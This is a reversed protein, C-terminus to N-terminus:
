RLAITLKEGPKIKQFVVYRNTGQVSDRYILLNPQCSHTLNGYFGDITQNFDNNNFCNMQLITYIKLFMEKFIKYGDDFKALFDAFKQIKGRLEELEFMVDFYLLKSTLCIMNEFDMEINKMALIAKLINMDDEGDADNEWDFCTYNEDTKPFPKGGTLELSKCAFKLALHFMYDSTDKDKDIFYQCEIGHFGDM